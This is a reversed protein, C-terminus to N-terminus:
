KSNFGKIWYSSLVIKQRSLKLYPNDEISKGSKRDQIGKNYAKLNNGKMKFM